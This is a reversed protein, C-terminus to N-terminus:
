ALTLDPVTRQYVQLLQGRDTDLYMAFAYNSLLLTDGVDPLGQIEWRDVKNEFIFNKTKVGPNLVDWYEQFAAEAEERSIGAGRREKRKAQLELDTSMWFGLLDNSTRDFYGTASGLIVMVRNSKPRDSINGDRGDFIRSYDKLGAERREVIRALARMKSHAKVSDFNNPLDQVSVGLAITCLISLM